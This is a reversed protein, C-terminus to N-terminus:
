GAAAAGGAGRSQGADAVRRCGALVSGAGTAGGPWWRRLLRVPACAGDAGPGTGVAAARVDRRAGHLGPGRDGRWGESGGEAPRRRREASEPRGPERVGLVRLCAPLPVRSAAAAAAGRGRHVADRAAARVGPLGARGAGDPVGGLPAVAYMAADDAAGAAR